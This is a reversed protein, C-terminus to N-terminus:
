DIFYICMTKLVSTVFPQWKYRALDCVITLYVCINSKSALPQKFTTLYWRDVTPITWPWLYYWKICFQIKWSHYYLIDALYCLIVETQQPHILQLASYQSSCINTWCNLLEIHLQVTFNKFCMNCMCADGNEFDLDSGGAIEIDQHLEQSSVERVEGM